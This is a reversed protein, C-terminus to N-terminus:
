MNVGSGKQNTTFKSMKMKVTNRLEFLCIKNLDCTRMCRVVVKTIQLVTVLLNKDKKM